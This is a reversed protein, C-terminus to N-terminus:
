ISLVSNLWAQKTEHHVIAWATDIAEQTAEDDGEDLAADINEILGLIETLLNEMTWDPM